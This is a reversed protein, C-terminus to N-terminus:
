LVSEIPEKVAGRLRIPPPTVTLKDRLFLFRSSTLDKTFIDACQDQTPIDSACLDKHFIKERIFHYDVEIHKTRAHYIPNFALAIAGINDCWLVPPDHLSVQLEKLLMRLWSLEVATIAMARYEAETNSRSVVPQKKAHWSVLNSSFFVCYGTTSRRNLPDGAWDSDCYAQLQLPGPTFHLVHDPTGKLYRLVRKVAKIHETTPCHLFQCLENVTYAIDPRTLTCYQLAGIIHRYTTPDPLTDGDLKILKKGSTCPAAYPKAGLMQVRDFLDIIYKGQNLHLGTKDRLVHIGLFYSLCGLDKLKFEMQLGHILTEMIASDTGTVIIDDVYILIYIHVSGQHIMFLYTDVLSGVFGLNLLAQSLRHFWARPAQKLGYLAKKLKCVHDPFAADIFGTPQEM